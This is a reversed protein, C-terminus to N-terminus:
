IFTFILTLVLLLISLKIIFKPYYTYIMAIFCIIVGVLGLWYTIGLSLGFIEIVLYLSIALIVYGVGMFLYKLKKNIEKSIVEKYHKDLALSLLFLALYTAYFGISIM